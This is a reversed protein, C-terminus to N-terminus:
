SRVEELPLSVHLLCKLDLNQFFEHLEELTTFPKVLVEEGDDEKILHSLISQLMRKTSSEAECGQQQFAM